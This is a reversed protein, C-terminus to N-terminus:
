TGGADLNALRPQSFRRGLKPFCLTLPQQRVCVADNHLTTQTHLCPQSFWFWITLQGPGAPPRSAHENPSLSRANLPGLTRILRRTRSSRTVDRTGIRWGLGHARGFRVPVFHRTRLRWRTGAVAVLAAARLLRRMREHPGRRRHLRTRLHVLAFGVLEARPLLLPGSRRRALRSGTWM